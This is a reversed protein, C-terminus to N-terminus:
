KLLSVTAAPAVSKLLDFVGNGVYWAANLYPNDNLLNGLRKATVRAPALLDLDALVREVNQDILKGQKDYLKGQKRLNNIQAYAVQVKSALESMQSRNLMIGSVKVARDLSQNLVKYFNDINLGSATEFAINAAEKSQSIRYKETAQSVKLDSLLQDILIKKQRNDLNSGQLRSISDAIQVNLMAPYYDSQYEMMRRNARQVGATEKEYQRQFYGSLADTVGSFNAQYAQMPLSSPVSGSAGTVSTAGADGNNYVMAPNLGAQRLLKAQNFPSNYENTKNWMKETFENQNQQMQQAMRMSEENILANQQNASKQSFYNLASAGVAGVAGIIAPLM